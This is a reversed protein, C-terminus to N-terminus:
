GTSSSISIKMQADPEVKSSRLASYVRCHFIFVEPYGQMRCFRYIRQSRETRHSAPFGPAHKVTLARFLFMTGSSDSEAVLARGKSSPSGIITMQFHTAYSLDSQGHQGKQRRSPEHLKSSPWFSELHNEEDSEVEDYRRLERHKLYCLLDEVFALSCFASLVHLGQSMAPRIPDPLM